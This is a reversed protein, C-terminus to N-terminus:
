WWGEDELWAETEAKVALQVLDAIISDLEKESVDEYLSWKRAKVGGQDLLKSKKLVINAQDADSVVLALEKPTSLLRIKPLWEVCQEAVLRSAAGKPGADDVDAQWIAHPLQLVALEQLRSLAM